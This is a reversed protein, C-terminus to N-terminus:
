ENGVEDGGKEPATSQRRSEPDMPPRLLPDKVPKTQDVPTDVGGERASYEGNVIRALNHLSESDHEYYKVHDNTPPGQGRSTSEAEFRIAGFDEDAPNHGM